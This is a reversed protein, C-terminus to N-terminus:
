KGLFIDLPSPLTVVCQVQQLQAMLRGGLCLYVVRSVVRILGRFESFSFRSMNVNSVDLSRERGDMRRM